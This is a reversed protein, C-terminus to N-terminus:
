YESLNEQISVILDEFSEPKSFYYGQGLKINYDKLLKISEEDEIGEAIIKMNKEQAQKNIMEIINKTFTGSSKSLFKKHLKITNVALNDLHSITSFELGYNDIAIMFGLQRLRAINEQIIEVKDLMAVEIIEMCFDSAEARHKILIRKLENVLAPNLLQKTSLNMSLCLENDPFKVKLQQYQKVLQEFAWLGVWYIDGSQELIDLFKSPPLIGLMKHNWRLLSEAGVISMNTVNFIPQYFLTFEKNVIADKIEKYYKYEETEANSLQRDYIRYTNLGKRKSEIMALDLSHMFEEYTKGCDPFNLGCINVDIDVKLSGVITFPKNSQTLITKAMYNLQKIGLYNKFYFTITYEEIFYKVGEMMLFSLRDILESIINNLQINGLNSKLSEKDYIDIQLISFSTKRNATEIRKQIFRKVDTIKMKEQNQSDIFNIRAKKVSKILFLVALISFVFIILVFIVDQTFQETMLYM